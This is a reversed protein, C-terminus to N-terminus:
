ESGVTITFSSDSRTELHDCIISVSYPDKMRKKYLLVFDKMYGPYPLEKKSQILNRIDNVFIKSCNSSDRHNYMRLFEETDQIKEQSVFYLIILMMSPNGLTDPDLQYVLSDFVPEHTTGLTRFITLNLDSKFEKRLRHAEKEKQKQNDSSCSSLTM